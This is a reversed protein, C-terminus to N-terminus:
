EINKEKKNNIIKKNESSRVSCLNISNNNIQNNMKNLIINHQNNINININIHNKKKNQLSTNNTKGTIKENSNNNDNRNRSLINKKGNNKNNNGKIFFNNKYLSINKPKNTNKNNFNVASKSDNNKNLYNKLKEQINIINIKKQIIENKKNLNFNLETSRKQLGNPQPYKKLSSNSIIIKNKAGIQSKIKNSNQPNLQQTLNSFNNTFNIRKQNDNIKINISNKNIINNYINNVSHFNKNTNNQSQNNFL